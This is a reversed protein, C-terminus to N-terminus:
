RRGGRSCLVDWYRAMELSLYNRIKSFDPKTHPYETDIFAFFGDRTYAINDPRYSDGGSEKIIVYLEELHAKTMKTRWAERSEQKSTIRMNDVLLVVTKQQYAAGKGPFPSIPLPYIYKRAVKFHTFRHKRISRRIRMAGECRRVFWYYDPKNKKQTTVSDLYVKLLYGPLLPHKAVRIYSRPQVHMTIFGAEVFTRENLTPRRGLFIRNLQNKMPHTDPIVFPAMERRFRSSILPNNTFNNLSASLFSYFLLLFLIKRM